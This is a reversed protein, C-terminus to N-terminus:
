CDRKLVSRKPELRTWRSLQPKSVPIHILIGMINLLGQINGDEGIPGHLANFCVDPKLKELVSSINRDVDIKTVQFGSSQLAEVCALGSLISVERESSWGGMLVAVHRNM